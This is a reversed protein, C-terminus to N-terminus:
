PLLPTYYSQSYYGRPRLIGYGYYTRTTIVGAAPVVMAAPAAYTVIAPSSYTVVAPASPASYTYVTTPAPYYSYTASSSYAAVPPAVYYSTVPPGVIIPAVYPRPQVVIVQAQTVSPLIAYASLALGLFMAFRRM